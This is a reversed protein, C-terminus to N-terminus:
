GAQEGLPLRAEFFEVTRSKELTVVDFGLERL